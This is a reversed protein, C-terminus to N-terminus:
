VRGGKMIASHELAPVERKKQPDYLFVRDTKKEYYGTTFLMRVPKKKDTNNVHMIRIEVRKGDKSAGAFELEYYQSPMPRKVRSMRLTWTGKPNLHVLAQKQVASRVKWSLEGSIAPAKPKQVREREGSHLSLTLIASASALAFALLFPHTAKM